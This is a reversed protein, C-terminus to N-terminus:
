RHEIIFEAIPSFRSQTKKNLFKKYAQITNEKKVNEWDKEEKITDGKNKDTLNQVLPDIGYQNKGIIGKLFGLNVLAYLWGIFPIFNILIMWASKGHDHWRKAQASLSVWLPFSYCILSPIYSEDENTLEM